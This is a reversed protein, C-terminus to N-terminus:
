EVTYYEIRTISQIVTGGQSSVTIEHINGKWNDDFVYENIGGEHFNITVGERGEIWEITGHKSNQAKSKRAKRMDGCIQGAVNEGKGGANNADATGLVKVSNDADWVTLPCFRIIWPIM